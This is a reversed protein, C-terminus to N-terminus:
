SPSAVPGPSAAARPADDLSLIADLKSAGIELLRPVAEFAVDLARAIRAHDAGGDQLALAEAYAPPLLSLATARDM